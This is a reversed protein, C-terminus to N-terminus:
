GRSCRPPFSWGPWGFARRWARARRGAYIVRDPALAQMAGVPRRDYRFEGDYDDEIVIGGWEAFSRRRDPTLTMGLPFQHAPTLVVADADGAADVVAGRPTWRSCRCACGRGPSSTATGPHGYEEVAM